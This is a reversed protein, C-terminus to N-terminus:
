DKNFETYYYDRNNGNYVDNTNVRWRMKNSNPFLIEDTIYIQTENEQTVNNFYTSTLKYVGESLKEWVGEIFEPNVETIVCDGNGDPNYNYFDYNSNIEFIYRSQQQCSSYNYTDSTGDEYFNVQKIPKWSGIILDAEMEMEMENEPTNSDDNKSCSILVLISLLFYFTKKM